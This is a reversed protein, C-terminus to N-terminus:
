LDAGIYPSSRSQRDKVGYLHVVDCFKHPTTAKTTMETIKATNNEVGLCYPLTFVIVPLASDM